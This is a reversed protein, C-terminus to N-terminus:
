RPPEIHELALCRTCIRQRTRLSVKHAWTHGHWMCLLTSNHHALEEALYVLVRSLWNSM